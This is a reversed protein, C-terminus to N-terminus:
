GLDGAAGLLLSAAVIAATEARLIRRGLSVVHAGARRAADVEAASLGGEPGIFLSMTEGRAISLSRLHDATEGEWPIVLPGEAATLADPLSTAPSVEPIRGRGSQEAAEQVITQYRRQRAEGPEGAVSREMLVPVFGAVGIETGKQLVFDMKSGKLMGQYLVIRTSPEAKNRRQEEVIGEAFSLLRVVFEDGSNDLVVIRDDPRLRLVTRIQRAQDPPISVRKGDICGAPLFFRHVALLAGSVPGRDAM